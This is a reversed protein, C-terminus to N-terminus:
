TLTIPYALVRVTLCDHSNGKRGILVHASLVDEPPAQKRRHVAVVM